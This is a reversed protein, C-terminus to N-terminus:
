LDLYDFVHNPKIFILWCCCVEKGTVLQDPHFLQRYTGTRIDDIVSPELDVMVARPVHKEKYKESFFQEFNFEVFM